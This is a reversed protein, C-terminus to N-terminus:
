INGQQSEKKGKKTKIKKGLKFGIVKHVSIKLM